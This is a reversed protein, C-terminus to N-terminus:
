TRWRGTVSSRRSFDRLTICNQLFSTRLNIGIHKTTRAPPNFLISVSNIQLRRNTEYVADNAKALDNQSVPLPFVKM